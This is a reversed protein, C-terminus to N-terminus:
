WNLDREDLEARLAGLDWAQLTFDAGTCWLYRGDGSLAAAANPLEAPLTAVRIRGRWDFLAIRYDPRSVALLGTMPAFAMQGRWNPASGGQPLAVRAVVRRMRPDLSLLEQGTDVVLEDGDPLFAFSALTQEPRM